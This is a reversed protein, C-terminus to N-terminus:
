LLEPLLKPEGGVTQHRDSQRRWRVAGHLVQMAPGVATAEANAPVQGRIWDQVAAIDAPQRADIATARGLCRLQLDALDTGPPAPRAPSPRDLHLRVSGCTDCAAGRHNRPLDSRDRLIEGEGYAGGLSGVSLRRCTWLEAPLEQFLTG